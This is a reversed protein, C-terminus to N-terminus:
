KGEHSCCSASGNNEPTLQKAVADQPYRDHHRVWAMPFELTDEDRGKPAMDLFNYVGLLIDLGRGYTSYTHFISGQDDKYFVSLGPAENSPFDQLQYNYLMKHQAMEKETFSVNYDRNFGNEFSSVWQFNWGMRQKFAKIQSIRARSVVAVSVDRNALHVLSGELHDALMSCSPCGEEWGPGFMFHYLILQSKGDFLDALREKGNPGEFVYNEDVKVWPLERRLKSIEDRQRTLEKEKQLLEKRASLWKDQSVISRSTFPREATASNATREHIITQPM